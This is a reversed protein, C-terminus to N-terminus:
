TDSATAISSTAAPSPAVEEMAVALSVFDLGAGGYAEPTVMGLVGLEGLGRLAERPFTNERDWTAANPALRERAFNRVTDRIQRQQETLLM